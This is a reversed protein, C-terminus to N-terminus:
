SHLRFCTCIVQVENWSTLDGDTPGLVVNAKICAANVSDVLPWWCKVTLTYGCAKEM